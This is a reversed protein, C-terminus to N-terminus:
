RTRRPVHNPHGFLLPEWCGSLGLASWCRPKMLRRMRCDWRRSESTETDFETGETDLLGSKLVEDRGTGWDQLCVSCKRMSFVTAPSM